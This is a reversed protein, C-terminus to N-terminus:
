RSLNYKKIYNEVAGVSVNLINAIKRYTFHKLVYLEYLTDKEILPKLYKRNKAPRIEVNLKKLHKLITQHSTKYMKAIEVATKFEECYLRLLEEDDIKIRQVDNWDRINIGEKKLIPATVWKDYGYENKLQKLTYNEESYKKKIEQIINEPVVVRYNHEGGIGKNYGDEISNFKKIYYKEKEDLKELEINNELEVIFFNEKGISRVAEYFKSNRRYADSMHKNFRMNVPQITQGIYVKDNEYNAIMYITGTRMNDGLYMIYYKEVSHM